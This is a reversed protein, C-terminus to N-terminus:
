EGKLTSNYFDLADNVGKVVANSTITAGTLAEIESDNTATGKIVSLSADTAKNKFQDSFDPKVANAGLGPTETHSLIKIGGTTGDTYLGVMIEVAGSYGKPAVKITYGVIEGSAYAENVELIQEPLEMEKTKFEEAKPLIEIMAKQKTALEAKAIPEKTIDHVFGLLIGALGAILFLIASLKAILFLIDRPITKNRM